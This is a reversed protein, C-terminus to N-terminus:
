QYCSVRHLLCLRGSSCYHSSQHVHAISCTRSFMLLSLGRHFLGSWLVPVPQPIYDHLLWEPRSFWFDRLHHGFTIWQMVRCLDKWKRTAWGHWRYLMTLLKGLGRSIIIIFLSALFKLAASWFNEFVFHQTPLCNPWQPLNLWVSSSFPKMFHKRVSVGM